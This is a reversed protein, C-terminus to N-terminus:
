IFCLLIRFPFAPCARMRSKIGFARAEYSASAIESTGTFRSAPCVAVPRGALSPNDRVAVSVYFCDLDVHFVVTQAPIGDLMPASTLVPQPPSTQDEDAPEEEQDGQNESLRRKRGQLIDSTMRYAHASACSFIRVTSIELAM